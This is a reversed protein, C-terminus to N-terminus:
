TKWGGSSRTLLDEWGPTCYFSLPVVTAVVYCLYCCCNCCNFCCYHCAVAPSLLCFCCFCCYCCSVISLLLCNYFVSTAPMLLLSVNEGSLIKFNDKSRPLLRLVEIMHGASCAEFLAIEQLYFSLSDIVLLAFNHCCDRVSRM